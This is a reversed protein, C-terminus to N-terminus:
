MEDILKRFSSIKDYLLQFLNRSNGSFSIEDWNVLSFKLGFKQCTSCILEKIIQGDKISAKIASEGSYNNFAIHSYKQLTDAYMVLLSKPQLKEVLTFLKHFFEEDRNKPICSIGVLVNKNMLDKIQIM